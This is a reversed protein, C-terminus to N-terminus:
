ILGSNDPKLVAGYGLAPCAREGGTISKFVSFKKPRSVVNHRPGAPAGHLAPRHGHRGNDPRLDRITYTRMAPRQEASLGRRAAQWDGHKPLRPAAGSPSPFFLKVRQDPALTRMLSVEKGSFVFRTLSPSLAIRQKLQIDFLQYGTPKSLRKRLHNVLTAAASM